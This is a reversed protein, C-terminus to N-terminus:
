TMVRQIVNFPAVPCTAELSTGMMHCHSADEPHDTAELVIGLVFWAKHFCPDLNVADRLVKEALRNDGLKHLVIGLHYLSKTHTPNVSIANEYCMKAENLCGKHEYVLGRMFFVYVSHPFLQFTEQVCSQAEQVQNLSLYLEALNLWIQAQIVWSRQPGARPQFSSNMSSALDSLAKEMRSAAYSEARISGSGRESFENLTIQALSRKDWPNRERVKSKSDSGDDAIDLEHMDKWLKLMKQYTSLAEDPGLVIKELKAKTMLLSLNDPYEELAAQILTMAEEHQKRASLLLTLLHLSHIFDSRNELSKKTFEIAVNIKRLNAYQLALHFATLYDSPNLDQATKFAELAKQNLSQRDANLRSDKAVLCLGIGLAMYARALFHKPVNCQVARQSWEVGQQNLQLHEYCLQAAQLCVTVNQPALRYCESLVPLAQSYKSSSILSNAFQYWIHFEQFSFRMAKEFSETLRGFQARKVLILALLDYIATINTLTLEHTEENRELVAERTAVAEAILLLLLVEEDLTKPVFLKDPCYVMPKPAKNNLSKANLDISKYSSSSSSRLLLQALELALTKRIDHAFRSEVARLMERYRNICKIKDGKKWHMVPVQKIAMEILSTVIFNNSETSPGMGQPTTPRKDRQQLCLFALDGAIEYCTIIEDERESIKYKTKLSSKTKDLCKGKIAFCEAVMYLLRTNKYANGESERLAISTLDVKELTDLCVQYFGECFKLKALLLLAQEKFLSNGESLKVLTDDAESLAQRATLANAENTPDHAEIFEELAMESQLLNVTSAIDTSKLAGQKALEVAKKWNCEVRCKDIESELRYTKTKSAM